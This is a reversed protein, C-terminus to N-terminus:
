FTELNSGDCGATGACVEIQFHCCCGCEYGMFVPLGFIELCAQIMRIWTFMVTESVIVNASLKDYCLICDFNEAGMEMFTTMSSINSRWTQYGHCGSLKDSSTDPVSPAYRKRKTDDKTGAVPFCQM